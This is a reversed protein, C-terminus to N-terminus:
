SMTKNIFEWILYLAIQTATEKNQIRDHYLRYQKSVRFGKASLAIFLTGVPSHDEYESASFIGTIGLGIDTDLSRAAAEAMALAVAESVVGHEQILAADIGLLNVKASTAYTVVSGKFYASSGPIQTLRHGIYGGTCSEALGLTLHKDKLVAGIQAELPQDDFSVVHSAIREALQMQFHETRAILAEEDVGRATLRLKVAYPSPLYALKINEPLQAEIDKIKEALFSEGEGFTLINRHVIVQQQQYRQQFLPLLTAQMMGKMEFPVGPMSVIMKGQQEFLMGPATGLENPIVTCVDPVEAQKLNRELLPRNRRLFIEKVHALVQENVVLTGGFFDCLVPKTVDDATPGLGGTLLVLDSLLMEEKLAQVIAEKTDAVAVRRQVDIGITNLQQAIWASNTDIIQGILLEDGITIISAKTGNTM